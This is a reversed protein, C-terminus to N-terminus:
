SYGISQVITGKNFRFNLLEDLADKLDEAETLLLGKIEFLTESSNVRHAGVLARRRGKNIYIDGVDMANYTERHEWSGIFPRYELSVRNFYVKVTLYTFFVARSTKLQYILSSNNQDYQINYSVPASSQSPIYQQRQSIVQQPQYNQQQQRRVQRMTIICVYLM